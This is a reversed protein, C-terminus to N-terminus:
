PNGSGAPGLDLIGAAQLRALVDDSSGGIRLDVDKTTRARELRLELVLGGKLMVADGFAVAM